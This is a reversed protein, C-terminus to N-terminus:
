SCVVAAAAVVVLLPLFCCIDGKISFFPRGDDDQGYCSLKSAVGLPSPFSLFFISPETQYISRFTHTHTHTRPNRQQEAQRLLWMPPLAMTPLPYLDGTARKGSSSTCCCDCCDVVSSSSQRQKYFSRSHFTEDAVINLIRGYWHM